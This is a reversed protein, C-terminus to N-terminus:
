RNNRHDGKEYQGRNYTYCSKQMKDLINQLFQIFQDLKNEDVNWDEFDKIKM